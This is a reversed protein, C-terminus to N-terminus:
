DPRSSLWDQGRKIRWFALRERLTDLGSQIFAIETAGPLPSERVRELAAEHQDALMSYIEIWHDAESTATWGSRSHEGDMNALRMAAAAEDTTRRHSLRGSNSSIPIGTWKPLRTDRFSTLHTGLLQVESAPSRSQSQRLATETSKVLESCIAIRSDADERTADSNDGNV